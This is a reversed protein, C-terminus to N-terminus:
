RSSQPPLMRKVAVQTGRYEGRLVKGYIGEGLVESEDSLHLESFPIHMVTLRNARMVVFVAILMIIMAIIIVVLFGALGLNGFLKHPIVKCFNCICSANQLSCM